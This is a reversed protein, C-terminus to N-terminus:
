NAACFVSAEPGREGRRKKEMRVLGAEVLSELASEIAKRRFGTKQTLERLTYGYAQSVLLGLIRNETLSDDGRNLTDLLRHYSARWTEAIQQARAWHGLSIQLSGKGGADAWDMAALVLAVKVAQVHLRSYNPHLRPDPMETSSLIDYTIVRTYAEYAALAEKCILANVVPLVPPKDELGAGPRAPMPLLTHLAKLRSVLASPPAYDTLSGGPNYPSEKEPFLLVFRALEGTEWSQANINRQLSAPTTAGLICLSADYIVIKGESRVNRTYRHPADYLRMVMEAHGQMYDKKTAGFLSSAEDLLLGRQAAFRQGADELQKEYASLSDYNLPRKGGLASIFAEPTSEEPLLMHPMAENVLDYIAEMGTTKKYISTMAVWLVYLHPYIPKHLPVACRRATALGLSWLL